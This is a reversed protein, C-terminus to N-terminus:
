RRRLRSMVDEPLRFAEENSQANRRQFELGEQYSRQRADQLGGSNQFEEFEALMREEDSMSLPEVDDWYREGANEVYFKETRAPTSPEKKFYHKYEQRLADGLEKGKLAKGDRIFVVDKNLEPFDKMHYGRQRFMEETGRSFGKQGEVGFKKGQADAEILLLRGKGHKKKAFRGLEVLVRAGTGAEASLARMENKGWWQPVFYSPIKKILESSEVAGMGAEHEAIKKSTTLPAETRHLYLDMKHEGLPAHFAKVSFKDGAKKSKEAMVGIREMKGSREFVSASEEKIEREIRQAYDSEMVKQWAREPRQDIWQRIDDFEAKNIPYDGMAIELDVGVPDTYVEYLIRDTRSEGTPRTFHHRRVSFEVDEYVRQPSMGGRRMADTMRDFTQPDASPRMPEFSGLPQTSAYGQTHPPEVYLGADHREARHYQVGRPARKEGPPMDYLSFKWAKGKEPIKGTRPDLGPLRQISRYTKLTAPLIGASAIDLGEFVADQPSPTAIGRILRKAGEAINPFRGPQKAVTQRSAEKTGFLADLGEAVKTRAKDGGQYLTTM